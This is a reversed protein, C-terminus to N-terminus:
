EMSSGKPPQPTDKTLKKKKNLERQLATEVEAVTEDITYDGSGTYEDFLNIIRDSRRGVHMLRLSLSDKVPPRTISDVIFSILSIPSFLLDRMADFILKLQFVLLHRFANKIPIPENQPLNAIPM